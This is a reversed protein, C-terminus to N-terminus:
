LRCDICVAVVFSLRSAFNGYISTFRISIRIVGHCNKHSSTIRDNYNEVPTRLNYLQDAQKRHEHMHSQSYKNRHIIHIIRGDHADLARQCASGRIKSIVTTKQRVSTTTRQPTMGVVDPLQEHWSCVVFKAVHTERCGTRSQPVIKM